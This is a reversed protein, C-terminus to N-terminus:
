GPPGPEAPLDVKDYLETLPLRCGIASLDLVAEPGSHETLLWRGDPQRAYREVRMRNQAVLVYDTLGEVRRYHGFKEGRDYAETTSSLIEFIVQPNLLTDRKDDLFRAPECLAVVDPYTYLGTPSVLVRMDQTFVKCPRGKFLARLEGGLNTVILNHNENTGAMLYMKGNFYESRREAKRELELYEEPNLYQPATAM